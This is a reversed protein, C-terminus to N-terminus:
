NVTELFSHFLIFRICILDSKKLTILFIILFNNKEINWVGLLILRFTLSFAALYYIINERTLSFLMKHMKSNYSAGLFTFLKRHWYNRLALLFIMRCSRKVYWLYKCQIYHSTFFQWSFPSPFFFIIGGTFILRM